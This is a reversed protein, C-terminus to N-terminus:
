RGSQIQFHYLPFRFLVCFLHEPLATIQIKETAACLLDSEVVAGSIMGRSRAPGRAIM